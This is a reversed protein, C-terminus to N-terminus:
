VIEPYAREVDVLSEITAILSARELDALGCGLENPPSAEDRVDIRAKVSTESTPALEVALWHDETALAASPATGDVLAELSARFLRLEDSRLNGEQQCSFGGIRLSLSTWLWDADDGEPYLRGRVTLLVHDDSRRGILIERVPPV